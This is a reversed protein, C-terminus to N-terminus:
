RDRDARMSTARSTGCHACREDATAGNVSSSPRVGPISGISSSRATGAARMIKSFGSHKTLAKSSVSTTCSGRAHIHTPTRTSARTAMAASAIAARAGEGPGRALPRCPGLARRVDPQGPARRATGDGHVSRVGRSRPVDQRLAPVPRRLLADLARIDQLGLAGATNPYLKGDLALVRSNPESGLATRVYPTWGPSLFPDARKAWIHIRRSCRRARRRGGRRPPASGVPSRAMRRALVALSPRHRSSCAEVGFRRLHGRPASTIVTWRDGTRM